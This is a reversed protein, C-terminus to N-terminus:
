FACDTMVARVLIRPSLSLGTTFFRTSDRSSPTLAERAQDQCPVSHIGPSPCSPLALLLFPAPALARLLCLLSGARNRRRGTWLGHGSFDRGSGAQDLAAQTPCLALREEGVKVGRVATM